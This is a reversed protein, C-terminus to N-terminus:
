AEPGEAWIRTGLSIKDDDNFTVQHTIQIQVPINLCIQSIDYTNQHRCYAFSMGRPSSHCSWHNSM